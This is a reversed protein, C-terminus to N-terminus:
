GRFARGPFMVAFDRLRWWLVNGHFYYGGRWLFRFVGSALGVRFERIAVCVPCLVTNQTDHLAMRCSGTFRAGACGTERRRVCGGGSSPRSRPCPGSRPRKSTEARGCRPTAGRAFVSSVAGGDGEGRLSCVRRRWRVAPPARGPRRRRRVAPYMGSRANCAWLAVASGRPGWWVFGCKGGSNGNVGKKRVHHYEFLAPAPGLPFGIGM